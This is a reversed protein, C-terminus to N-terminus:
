QAASTSKPKGNMWGFASKRECCLSMVSAIVFLVNQWCCLSKFRYLQTLKVEKWKESMAKVVVVVPPVLSPRRWEDDGENMAIWEDAADTLMNIFAIAM